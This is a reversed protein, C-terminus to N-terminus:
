RLFVWGFDRNTWGLGLELVDTYAGDRARVVMLVTDGFLHLQRVCALLYRSDPSWQMGFLVNERGLIESEKGTEIEFLVGHQNRGVWAITSGDPSWSPNVGRGIARYRRSALEYIRVEGGISLVVRQSDPSWGIMPSELDPTDVLVEDRLPTGITLIRFRAQFKPQEMGSEPWPQRIHECYAVSREDPSPTLSTGATMPEGADITWETHGKVDVRRVRGYGINLVLGRGSADFGGSGIDEESIAIERRPDAEFPHAFLSKLRFTGIQLGEERLRQLLEDRLESRARFRVQVGVLITAVCFIVIAVSVLRIRKM